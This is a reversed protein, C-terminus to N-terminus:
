GIRLFVYLAAVEGDVSQQHVREVAVPHEIEDASAIVQLGAHNAGDAIRFAAEGFVLQAHQPRYAKGRAEVVGDLRFGEGGDLPQRWSNLLDAALADAVFQGLHEGFSM